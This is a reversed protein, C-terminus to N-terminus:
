LNGVRIGRRRGLGEYEDIDASGRQFGMARRLCASRSDRIGLSHRREEGGEGLVRSTREMGRVEPIRLELSSSIVSVWSAVERACAIRAPLRVASCTAMANQLRAAIAWCTQLQRM